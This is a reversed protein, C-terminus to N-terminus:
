ESEPRMLPFLIVDRISAQSTLLMVLRDIGVGLGGAPPMGVKLAEVFDRDMTRFTSEEEDLGALQQRFKAEQVEPDNLETYANAVEMGGIFLEFREAIRPDGAKQKTLPCLAALYDMVFTPRTPDIAEEAFDFLQGVVLEHALGEVKLGRKTAEDRCRAEDWWSFGLAREFLEECTVREFPSGYDVQHGNFEIVLEDPSPLEDEAADEDGVRACACMTALERVMSETLEAMANYDAFAQYLELMSFEPNHSRDVGENRFNRAIEYVRPFGGVLLRKLHLEPAVRMFLAIDLANIHTRFPRAAAGGALTQLVPTDVEVFGREDLFRRMRSIIRSRRTFVRLTSPNAYLDVYRKRYRTEHDTLGSWKEPPPALSKAGMRVSSAWVTIEGARTRMLPGEVVLIDGLDALKAIQFGAEDCDRKSVAVQLDGAGQRDPDSTSDRLQMWILKGNDRLLMVRGAVAVRPRRDPAEKDQQAALDAAEDYAARAQELTVLGDTREGYPDAGLARIADRKERRQAELRHPSEPVENQAHETTM